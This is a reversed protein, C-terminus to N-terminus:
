LASECKLGLEFSLNLISALESEGFINLFNQYLFSKNKFYNFYSTWHLKDM